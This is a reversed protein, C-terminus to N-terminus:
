CNRKMQRIFSPKNIQKNSEDICSSETLHHTEPLKDKKGLVSIIFSTLCLFCFTFEESAEQGQIDAVPKARSGVVDKHLVPLPLHYFM